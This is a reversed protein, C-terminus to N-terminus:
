GPTRLRSGAGHDTRACGAVGNVCADRACRGRRTMGADEAPIWCCGVNGACGAVGDVWADRTCRGVGSEVSM